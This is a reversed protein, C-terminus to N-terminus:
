ESATRETNNFVHTPMTLKIYVCHDFIIFETLFAHAIMVYYLVILKLEVERNTYCKKSINQPNFVLNSKVFMRNVNSCSRKNM